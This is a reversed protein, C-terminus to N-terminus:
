AENNKLPTTCPSAHHDNARLLLRTMQLERAQSVDISAIRPVAPSSRHAPIFTLSSLAMNLITVPNGTVIPHDKNFDLYM